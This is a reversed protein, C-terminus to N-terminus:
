ILGVVQVVLGIALLGALADSFGGAILLSASLDAILTGMVLLRLKM